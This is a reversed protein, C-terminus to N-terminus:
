SIETSTASEVRVIRAEEFRTVGLSAKVSISSFVNLPNNSDPTMVIIPTPQQFYGWGFAEEGLYTAPYVKSITSAFTQVNASELTRAGLLENFKGAKLDMPSTYRGLDLWSGPSTNGRMDYNQNPHMMGVYYVGGFPQVNAARLTKVAQNHLTTDFLDGIALTARSTKGGAYLVNTGANVVGQLFADIQRAMALRTQRICADIVELASDRVLLDSVQVVIGKQTPGSKYATAGWVVASPNVGETVTGVSTTAIQSSQPFTLNEFGKPVDKKIGFNAFHLEPELTRVETTVYNILLDASWNSRVTVTM